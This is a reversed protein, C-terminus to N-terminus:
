LTYLYSNKNLYSVEHKLNNSDKSLKIVQREDKDNNGEAGSPQKEQNENNNCESVVSHKKEYRKIARMRIFDVIAMNLFRTAVFTVVSIYIFLPNIFVLCLSAILMIVGVTSLFRAIRNLHGRLKWIESDKKKSLISTIVSFNMKLLEFSACESLYRSIKYVHKVYNVVRTTVGLVANTIKICTYEYSRYPKIKPLM